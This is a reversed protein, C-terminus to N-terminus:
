ARLKLDEQALKTAVKDGWNSGELRQDLWVTILSPREEEEETTSVFEEAAYHDIREDLLSQENRLEFVIGVILLIVV